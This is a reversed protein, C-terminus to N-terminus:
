VIFDNKPKASIFEPYTRGGGRTLIVAGLGVSGIIITMLVGIIGICPIMSLLGQILTLAFAGFIATVMPTTSVKFRRLLMDGLPAAMTIWGLVLAAVIVLWGIGVLPLALCMLGLTLPITLFYVGTVVFAAGMSVFGVTGTAQLHSTGTEIIRSMRDPFLMFVLGALLGIIISTVIVQILHLIPSDMFSPMHSMMSRGSLAAGVDCHNSFDGNIKATNQGTVSRACISVNGNVTLGSINVEAIPSVVTLNGDIIGGLTAINTAVISVNGHVESSAAFTVVRAVVTLDGTYNGENVYHDQFQPSDSPGQASATNLTILACGVTLLTLLAACLHKFKFM